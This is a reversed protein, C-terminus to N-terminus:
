KKLPHPCDAAVPYYIKNEDKINGNEFGNRYCWKSDRSTLFNHSDKQQYIWFKVVPVAIIAILAVILMSLIILIKKM